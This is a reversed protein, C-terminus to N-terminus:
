RLSHPNAPGGSMARACKNYRHIDITAADRHVRLNCKHPNDGPFQVCYSCEIVNKDEDVRYGMQQMAHCGLQQMSDCSDVLADFVRKREVWAAIAADENHKRRHKRLNAKKQIGKKTALEANPSVFEHLAGLFKLEEYDDQDDSDWKDFKSLDIDVQEGSGGAM